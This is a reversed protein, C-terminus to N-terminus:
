KTQPYICDLSGGVGIVFDDFDADRNNEKVLALGTDDFNLLLGGDVLKEFKNGAPSNRRTAVETTSIIENEFLAQRESQSNITDVSYVTGASRDEFQSELYFAYRKGAEFLFEAKPQPVTNGPTGAFDASDANGLNTMYDSSRYVNEYQYNDSPKVEELLPTKDCSDLMIAGSADMQCSDLDIAGFTSQYAGHSEIFEFEVITDREFSIGENGVYDEAAAPANLLGLIGIAIAASPLSFLNVKITKPLMKQMQHKFKM